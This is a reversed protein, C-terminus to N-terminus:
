AIQKAVWVLLDGALKVNDATVKMRTYAGKDELAKQFKAPAKAVAASPFDLLVGYKRPNAYALTTTGIIRGYTGAPAEVYDAGVVAALDAATPATKETTATAMTKEKTTSTFLQEAMRKARALTPCGGVPERHSGNVRGYHYFGLPGSPGTVYVLAGNPGLGSWGGGTMDSVKRWTVKVTAAREAERRAVHAQFAETHNM